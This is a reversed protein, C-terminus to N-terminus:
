LGGVEHKKLDDTLQLWPLREEYHFHQTPKFASPDELSAAYFHIEHDFKEYTYAMPTGCTKCFYRKAGQSSAFVGPEEGTWRWQAHNVAFFTTMPASCNRRCSECHCHGTWNLDGEYEYSVARCLCRGQTASM